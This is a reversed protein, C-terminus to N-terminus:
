ATLIVKKLLLSLDCVANGGVGSCLEASLFTCAIVVVFYLIQKFHLFSSGFHCFTTMLLNRMLFTSTRKSLRTSAAVM